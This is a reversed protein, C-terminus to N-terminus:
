MTGSSHLLCFTPRFGKWFRESPSKLLHIVGLYESHFATNPWCLGVQLPLPGEEPHGHQHAARHSQLAPHATLHFQHQVPDPLGHRVAALLSPSSDCTLDRFEIEQPRQTADHARPQRVQQSFGCFFQYLFQPFIFCVNQPSLPLSSRRNGGTLTSPYFLSERIPKICPEM